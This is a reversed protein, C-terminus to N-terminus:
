GFRHLCHLKGEEILRNSVKMKDEPKLLTTKIKLVPEEQEIQNEENISETLM